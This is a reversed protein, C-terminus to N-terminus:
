YNTWVATRAAVDLILRKVPAAPVPTSLIHLYIAGNGLQGWYPPAALAPDLTLRLWYRRGALVPFHLSVTHTVPYYGAPITGLYTKSQWDPDPEGGTLNHFDAEGYLHFFKGVMAMDIPGSGDLAKQAQYNRVEISQILSPRYPQFSFSFDPALNGDADRYGSVSVGADDELPATPRVLLRNGIHTVSVSWFPAGAETVFVSGATVLSRNFFVQIPAMGSVGTANNAPMTGIVRFFGAPYGPIDGYPVVCNGLGIPAIYFPTTNTRLETGVTFLVKTTLLGHFLPGWFSNASVLDSRKVVLRFSGDPMKEMLKARTKWLATEGHRHAPDAILWAQLEPLMAFAIGDKGQAFGPANQSGLHALSSEGYGPLGQL